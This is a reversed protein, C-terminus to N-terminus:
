HKSFPLATTFLHQASASPSPNCFYINSCTAPGPLLHHQSHIYLCQQPTQIGGLARQWSPPNPIQSHLRHPFDQTGATIFGRGAMCCSPM